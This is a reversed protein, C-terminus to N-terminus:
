RYREPAPEVIRDFASPDDLEKALIMAGELLALFAAAETQATGREEYHRSLVEALWALVTDFFRRTETAVPEPVSAVEAGLMGCLCMSGERAPTEKFLNRQRGLMMVLSTVLEERIGDLPPNTVQAFLQKFYNYM